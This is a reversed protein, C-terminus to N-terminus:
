RRWDLNCTSTMAPSLFCGSDVARVSAMELPEKGPIMLDRSRNPFLDRERRSSRCAGDGENIM